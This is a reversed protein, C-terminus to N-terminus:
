QRSEAKSIRVARRAILSGSLRIAQDVEEPSSFTVFASGRSQGEENKLIYVSNTNFGESDFFDKITQEDANYPLGGLHVKLGNNQNGKTRAFNSGGRSFENDRNGGRNRSSDRDRSFDRDRSEYKGRSGSRAMNRNNYVENFNEELEPLTEAKQVVFEESQLDRIVKNLNEEESHPIDFAAGNRNQFLKLTRISDMINSPLYDRLTDRVQNSGKFDTETEITYTVFGENSTILSRQKFKETTGTVIALARSLAEEPGLDEILESSIEKFMAVVEHPVMKISAAIDRGSAKIIDAPQPAGIKQFKLKAKHEIKELIENHQNTYFTVCVGSKGARATRGARHVYTEVDTPPDLQIVLDIEPIDLGRAAVNTAILVKFKGERFAKFTIERQQQPIDGHLVQCEQRINAEMLISNAEKKTETFIITRAHQGGYCLAIDSITHNRDRSSCKIALHKVTSPTKLGKDKLLDIKVINDRLYKKSAEHVWSPLTASLLMTQLEQRDKQAQVKQYIKEIDEQFGMDLMMDAEDLVITELSSMDIAGRELIDILRGPTSVVFETGRRIDDLQRTIDSGGYLSTVRYERDSLKLKNL